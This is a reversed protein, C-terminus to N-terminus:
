RIIDYSYDTKAIEMTNADLAEFFEDLLTVLVRMGGAYGWTPYRHYHHRDFIPFVMRVLPTKTDRELFKGYTNGIMFDVPETFLLSRLHWLDAKPYAKCGNGYPSSAFLKNMREEWEKGGNTAVVHSPEAGLEMLFASYGIMQDPDAHQVINDRPVFHILKTGLMGALADALEYEKDTQRENCVLGGLRVGGSNAYKLIGKSINNAAYVPASSPMSAPARQPAARNGCRQSFRKRGSITRAM